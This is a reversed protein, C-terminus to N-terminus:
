RIVLSLTYNAVPHAIVYIYYDGTQPVTGRWRRGKNTARGFSAPEANFFDSSTSVTFEARNNTSTIQVTIKQGERAHIIYSNHSEGGIRGTATATIPLPKFEEKQQCVSTSPILIVIAGIKFLLYKFTHRL